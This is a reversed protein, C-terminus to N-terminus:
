AKVKKAIKAVTNALTTIQAKLAAMLTAVQTALEEVAATAADAADRAEEAAVTAADAAEAALNAADTAANAADIAEAAADTAAEAADRAANTAAAVTVTASNIGAPSLDAGVGTQNTAATGAAFATFATQTASATGKKGASSSSQGFEADAGTSSGLQVTVTTAASNGTLFFEVKGTEDTQGSSSSSGSGFYGDGTRTAYVYVGKIPNDFRDMVTATVLGGSVAATITRAEDAGKQAFYVDTTTSQGGATATVTCKTEKWAYISTSASGDAATYVTETTTLVGCGTGAVSFSVPVGAMVVANADKAIVTVTSRTASAGGTSSADIDVKDAYTISTDAVGASVHASTYVTLTTVTVDGYTLTATGSIGNSTATITDSSGVTGTDTLSYTVEGDANTVLTTSAVAGNRGAVTVTVSKNSMVGDYQDTLTFVISNTSGTAVRRTGNTASIDAEVAPSATVSILQPTTANLTALFTQYSYSDVGTRLLSATLTTAACGASCTATAAVATASFSVPISYLSAVGTGTIKSSTDTITWHSKEAATNAASNSVYLSHSSDTTATLYTATETGSNLGNATTLTPTTSASAAALSTDTSLKAATWTPPTADSLTFTIGLSSTLSSALTGSGTATVTVTEGAINDVRVYCATSSCTANTGSAGAEGIVWTTLTNDAADQPAQFTASGTTTLTIKEGSGLPAGLTIKVIQGPVGGAALAAPSPTLASLTMTTPASATTLSFSTSTDASSPTYYHSASDADGIVDTLANPTSVLFTYTGAVDPTFEVRLTIQSKTDDAGITYVSTATANGAASFADARLSGYSGSGSSAANWELISGSNAGATFGSPASPNAAVNAYSSNSPASLLSVGVVVTDGTAATSPLNFVIPTNSAVGVRATPLTGVALTTALEQNANATPAVAVSLMGFGLTSVAVLAIRKLTTKTSM